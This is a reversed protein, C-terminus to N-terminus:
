PTTRRLPVPPLIGHPAPRLVQRQQKGNRPWQDTSVHTRKYCQQRGHQERWLFHQCMYSCVKSLKINIMDIEQRAAAAHFTDPSHHSKCGVVSPPEPLMWAGRQEYSFACTLANQKRVKLITDLGLENALACVSYDKSYRSIFLLDSSLM